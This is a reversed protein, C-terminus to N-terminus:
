SEVFKDVLCQAIQKKQEDLEEITILDKDNLLEILAFLLTFQKLLKQPTLTSATTIISCVSSLDIHNKLLMETLNENSLNM